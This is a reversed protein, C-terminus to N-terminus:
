SVQEQSASAFERRLLHRLYPVLAPHTTVLARSEAAGEGLLACVASRRDAVVAVPLGGWYAAVQPLPAPRLLAGRPAPSGLALVRVTTRGRSAGELEAFVDRAWPGVVALLEEGASRACARVRDLIAERGEFSEAGEPPRSVPSREVAALDRALADLDRRWDRELRTVVTTPDSPAYRVPRGPLRAVIGRPSLAELAGYVNARALGAELAVAYGTAPGLRLLAV